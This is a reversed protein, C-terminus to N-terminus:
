SLRASVANRQIPSVDSIRILQSRFRTLARIVSFNSFVQECSKAISQVRIAENQFKSQVNYVFTTTTLTSVRTEAGSM